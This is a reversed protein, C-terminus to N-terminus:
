LNLVRQPYKEESRKFLYRAVAELGQLCVCFLRMFRCKQIQAGPPVRVGLTQDSTLYSIWKVVPAIRSIM